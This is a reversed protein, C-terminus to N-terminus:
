LSANTSNSAKQYKESSKQYAQEHCKFDFVENNKKMRVYEVPILRSPLCSRNVLRNCDCCAVPQPNRAAAFEKNCKSCFLSVASMVLYFFVQSFKSHLASSLTELCVAQPPYYTALNDSKSVHVDQVLRSCRARGKFMECSGQVDRLLLFNHTKTNMTQTNM